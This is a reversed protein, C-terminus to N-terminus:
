HSAEPFVEEVDEFWEGTKQVEGEVAEVAELQVAENEYASLEGALDGTEVSPAVPTAPAKWAKVQGEADSAKLTPAKYSRLEKVYLDQLPDASRVSSIAFTRAPVVQVRAARATLRLARSFM